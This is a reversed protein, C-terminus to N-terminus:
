KPVAWLHVTGNADGWAFWKGDPSFTLAYVGDADHEILLEQQEVDWIQWGTSTGVALLNSAPNFALAGAPGPEVDKVFLNQYIQKMQADLRELEAQYDIDADKSWAVYGPDLIKDIEKLNFLILKTHSLHALWTDDPSFALDLPVEDVAGLKKQLSVNWDTDSNFQVDLLEFEGGEYTIAARDSKSNFTAATSRRGVASGSRGKKEVLDWFSSGGEDGTILWIGDPSLTIGSWLQGDKERVGRFGSGFEAEVVGTTSNVVIVGSLDTAYGSDNMTLETQGSTLGLFQGDARFSTGTVSVPGVDIEKILTGDTLSWIQIIGSAGARTLFLRKNNPSVAIAAIPKRRWGRQTAFIEIMNTVNKPNIVLREKPITQQQCGMVLFIITILLWASSRRCKSQDRTSKDLNLGDFSSQCIILQTLIKNTM